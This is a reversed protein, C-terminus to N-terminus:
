KWNSVFERNPCCIPALMTWGYVIYVLWQSVIRVWMSAKSAEPTTSDSCLLRCMYQFVIHFCQPLLGDIFV